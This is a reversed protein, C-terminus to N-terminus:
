QNGCTSSNPKPSDEVPTHILAKEKDTLEIGKVAEYITGDKIAEIINEEFITM